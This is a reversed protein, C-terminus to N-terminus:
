EASFAGFDTIIKTVNLLYDCIEEDKEFIRSVMRMKREFERDFSMNKDVLPCVGHSRTDASVGIKVIGNPDKSAYFFLPFIRCSLPRDKRECTGNCIVEDLGTKGDNKVTFGHLGLFYEKEHPFLLMGDNESGHCCRGNCLKGCDDSLPTVAELLEYAKNITDNGFKNYFYSMKGKRCFIGASM